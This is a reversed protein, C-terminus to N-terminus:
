VRVTEATVGVHQVVGVSRTGAFCRAIDRYRVAIQEARSRAESLEGRVELCGVLADVTRDDDYKSKNCKAHPTASAFHM